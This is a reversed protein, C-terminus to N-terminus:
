GEKFCKISIHNRVADMFSAFIARSAPDEPLMEPHWQVGLIFQAPAASEIGEVTGDLARACVKFGHAVRDIAQHHYSNVKLESVGLIGSLRTNPTIHVSHSYPGDKDDQRHCVGVQAPLDQILTGGFGANIM